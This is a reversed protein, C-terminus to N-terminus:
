RVPRAAAPRTSPRTTSEQLDRLPKPPQIAPLQGTLLLPGIVRRAFPRMTAGIHDGGNGAWVWVGQYGFQTLKAYQSADGGPPLAFGVRGAADTKIRDITGFSRTGFGLVPDRDSNFSYAATRVRSLARSLDYNPSLAPAVLLWTDIRVDDPLQELAWAAIGAGGSHCSLILRRNPHARVIDTIQRAVIASEAQHRDVNSLAALGEDVGTWDYIFIEADLGAQVIGQTLMQDPYRHGGVGPLHFLIPQDDRGQFTPQTTSPLGAFGRAAFALLVLFLLPVPKWGTIRFRPIVSTEGGTRGRLEDLAPPGHWASAQTM